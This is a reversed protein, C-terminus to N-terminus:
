YKPILENPIESILFNKNDKDSVMPDSIPWDIDLDPDDWMIGVESNPNYFETCKYEFDAEDSIVCFGHAFGPPIFLQFQNEDSLIFSVHEKFTPSGKRMDVAVDYVCGNSVRVLKGQMKDLQYHLGRLTNKKSRSHNDQIFNYPIGIDKFHNKQYTELFFGRSDGHIKPKILKVDKIKTEICEM